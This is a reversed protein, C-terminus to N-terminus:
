NGGDVTGHESVYDTPTNRVTKSAKSLGYPQNPSPTQYGPPPALLSARPPEGTFKVAEDDKSSGINFINSFINGKSGLESPSLRDGPTASNPDGKSVSAKRPDGGPTLQDTPLPNQEREREDSVNRNRQQDVEIKRRAVDPDKPWAPNKAVVADSKEPPPLVRSPPIVLPAREQYNIAEGDRQLGLGEMIGRFIKKDLPVDDDAARAPASMALVAAGLTLSLAASACFTRNLGTPRRSKM